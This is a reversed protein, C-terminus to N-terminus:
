RTISGKLYQLIAFTIIGGFVITEFLLVACVLAMQQLTSPEINYKSFAYAPFLLYLGVNMLVLVVGAILSIKMGVSIGTIFIDGSTKSKYVNLAWAIVVALAIYKSLKLFPSFDNGSVQFLMLVIVMIGGGLLGYQTSLNNSNVIDTNEVRAM